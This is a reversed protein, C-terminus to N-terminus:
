WVELLLQLLLCGHGHLSPQLLDPFVCCREPLRAAPLASPPVAPEQRCGHLGPLSLSTASSGEEQLALCPQAPDLPLNQCIFQRLLM